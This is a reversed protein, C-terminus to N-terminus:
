RIIPYYYRLLMGALHLPTMGNKDKMDINIQAQSLLFKVCEVSGVFAACHLPSRYDSDHENVKVGSNILDKLLNIDGELCAEHISM